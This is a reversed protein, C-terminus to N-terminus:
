STEDQAKPGEPSGDARAGAAHWDAAYSRRIAQSQIQNLEDQALRNKEQAEHEHGAKQEYWGWLGYIDFRLAHGEDGSQTVESLAAGFQGAGAAYDGSEFLFSGYGRRALRRYYATRAASIAKEYYQRADIPDFSASALTVYDIDNVLGSPLQDILVAALRAQSTLAPGLYEAADPSKRSEIEM